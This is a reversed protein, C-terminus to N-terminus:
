RGGEGGGAGTMGAAGGRPRRDVPNAGSGAVASAPTPSHFALRARFGFRLYGPRLVFEPDYARARLRYDGAVFEQELWLPLHFLQSLGPLRVKVGRRVMRVLAAVM